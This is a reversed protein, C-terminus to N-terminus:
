QGSRIIAGLAAAGSLACLLTATHYEGTAAYAMSFAGALPATIAYLRNM